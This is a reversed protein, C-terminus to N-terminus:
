NEFVIGMDPVNNLVVAEFTFYGDVGQIDINLGFEDILRMTLKPLKIPSFYEQIKDSATAIYFGIDGSPGQIPKRFVVNKSYETQICAISPIEAIEVDFFINPRMDAKFYSKFTSPDSEYKKTTENYQLGFIRAISKDGSTNGVTEAKASFTFLGTKDEFGTVQSFETKLDDVNYNGNTLTTWAVGNIKIRERNHDNILLRCNPMHSRLVNFGIVNKLDVIGKSQLNIVFVRGDNSSTLNDRQSTSISFIIKRLDNKFINRYIEDKRKILAKQQQQDIIDVETPIPLTSENSPVERKDYHEIDGVKGAPKGHLRKCFYKVSYDKIDRKCAEIDENNRKKYKNLYKEAIKKYTDRCERNRSIDIERNSYVEQCIKDFTENM